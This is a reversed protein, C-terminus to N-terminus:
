LLVLHNQPKSRAVSTRQLWTFGRLQPPLAWDVNSADTWHRLYPKLGSCRLSTDPRMQLRTAATFRTTYSMVELGGPVMSHSHGFRQPPSPPQWTSPPRQHLQTPQPTTHTWCIHARLAHSGPTKSLGM